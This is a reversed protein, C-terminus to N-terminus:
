APHKPAQEKKGKKRGGSQPTKRDSDPLPLYHFRENLSRANFIDDLAVVKGSACQWCLTPALSPVGAIRM